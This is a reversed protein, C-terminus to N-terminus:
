MKVNGVNKYRERNFCGSCSIFGRTELRYSHFYKDDGYSLLGRFYYGGKPKEIAEYIKVHMDPNGWHARRVFFPLKKGDNEYIWDIPMTNLEEFM